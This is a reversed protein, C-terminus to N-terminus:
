KKSMIHQITKGLSEPTGMDSWFGEIETSALRKESLYHNNVDTIELEGRKSPKLTKIVKFVDPPYFYLGTIALNSKPTEPKEELSTLVHEEFNAVGFREPDPVKKLVIGALGKYVLTSFDPMDEFYNDGLIVLIDQGEAFKEALGLAQAIGGAEEQVRYTFELGRDKGSGLYELFDGAYERGSVVLIDTVGAGVLTALPYEIMPKDYVAVLHKNTINTLPKLRTGHGGALLVGKM